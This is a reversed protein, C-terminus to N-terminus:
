TLRATRVHVIANTQHCEALKLCEPSAQINFFGLLRVFDICNAIKSM